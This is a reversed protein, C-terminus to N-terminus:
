LINRLESLCHIEFTIDLDHVTDGYNFFIHDIGTNQAGIIDTEINDGIMLTNDPNAGAEKMAFEFIGKHPKRYGSSDSTIIKEFYHHINSSRLKIHQVDDFGNSIIHLHYKGKLYGLIEHTHPIVHPKVPAIELYKEGINDPIAKEPVGLKQLIINFRTDRLEDRDILGHNFKDWLYINVERFYEMFDQLTFTWQEFNFMAYIEEIAEATNKEFDWLTHDLDFFIHKYKGNM